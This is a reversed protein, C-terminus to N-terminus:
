TGVKKEKIIRATVKPRPESVKTNTCGRLLSKQISDLDSGKLMKEINAKTCKGGISNFLEEGIIGKVQVPDYSSRTQSIMEVHFDETDYSIEDTEMADAIMLNDIEELAYKLQKMGSELELRKQALLNRDGALYMLGGGDANRQWATCTAKIPCFMCGKGLQRQGKGTTALIREATDKVYRWTIVNDDRSFHVEVPGYRLLYFQVWIEDPDLDKYEAQAAMGYMRAQVRQMLQEPSIPERVTKYDVVRIIVKGDEKILDVRDFIFNMRKPGDSTKIMMHMKEEVQMVEVSPDLLDGIRDHWRQLMDKGDAYLPNSMSPMERLHKVFSVDFLAFLRDEDVEHTKDIFVEKVYLELPEHVASGLLAPKSSSGVRPLREVYEAHWGRPCEEFKTLSSASITKLEM